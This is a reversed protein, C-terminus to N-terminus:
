IYYDIPKTQLLYSKKTSRLELPLCHNKNKIRYEIPGLQGIQRCNNYHFNSRLGQDLYLALKKLELNLEHSNFNSTAELYYHPKNLISLVPFLKLEIGNLLESKKICNFEKEVHEANLKEGCLDSVLDIKSIFELLPCQNFHGTCKVIDGLQYRYLGGSTTIVVQYNQDRQLEHALHIDLSEQNIFEFFHSNISLVQIPADVMNLSSAKTIQLPFTILGETALLGKPQIFVNPFLKKLFQFTNKAWGNGWCSIIQLEPWFSHWDTQKSDSTFNSLLGITTIINQKQKLSLSRKSFKTLDFILGDKSKVIEELILILFSPNWISILSLDRQTLLWLAQKYFYENNSSKPITRNQRFSKCYQLIKAPLPFYSLDQDFGVSIEGIQFNRNRSEPSIIWYQSGKNILPFTTSLNYLWPSLGAYFENRLGKTFPIYKSNSSTGSTLHFQLFNEETLIKDGRRKIKRFWTSYDEYQSLPVLRQFDKIDSCNKFKLHEGILSNQNKTLIDFLKARQQQEVENTVKIFSDYQSKLLRNYIIDLM